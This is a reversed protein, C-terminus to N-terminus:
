NFGLGVYIIHGTYFKSVHTDVSGKSVPFADDQLGAASFFSWQLFRSAGLNVGHAIDLAM